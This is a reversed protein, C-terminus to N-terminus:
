TIAHIGPGHQRALCGRALGGCLLAIPLDLLSLQTLPGAVPQALVANWLELSRCRAGSLKQLQAIDISHLSQNCSLVIGSLGVDDDSRGRRDQEAHHDKENWQGEERCRFVPCEVM